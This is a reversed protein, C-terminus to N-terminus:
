RATFGDFTKSIALSFRVAQKEGAPIPPSLREIRFDVGNSSELAFTAGGFAFEVSAVDPTTGPRMRADVGVYWDLKASQAGSNFANRLMIARRRLMDIVGAFAADQPSPDVINADRRVRMTLFCVPPIRIQGDLVSFLMILIPEEPPRQASSNMYDDIRAVYPKGGVIAPRFRGEPCSDEPSFWDMPTQNKRAVRNEVNVLVIDACGLSGSFTVVAYQDGFKAVDLSSSYFFDEQLSEAGIFQAAEDSSISSFAPFFVNRSPNFSRTEDALIRNSEGNLATGLQECPSTAEPSLACGALTLVACFAAGRLKKPM